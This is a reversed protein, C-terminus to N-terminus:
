LCVISAIQLLKGLELQFDDDANMMFVMFVILQPVNMIVVCYFSTKPINLRFNDISIKIM